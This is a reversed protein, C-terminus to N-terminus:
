LKREDIMSYSVLPGYPGNDSCELRLSGGTVKRKVIEDTPPTGMGWRSRGLTVEWKETPVDNVVYWANCPGSQRDIELRNVTPTQKADDKPNGGFSRIMTAEYVGKYVSSSTKGYWIIEPNQLDQPPNPWIAARRLTEGRVAEEYLFEIAVLRRWKAPIEFTYSEVSGVVLRPFLVGTVFMLADDFNVLASVNFKDLAGDRPGIIRNGAWFDLRRTDSRPHAETKLDEASIIEM